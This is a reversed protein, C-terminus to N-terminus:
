TTTGDADGDADGVGRVSMGVVTGETVAGEPLIVKVGGVPSASALEFSVLMITPMTMPQTTMMATMMIKIKM